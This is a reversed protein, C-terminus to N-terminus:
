DVHKTKIFEIVELSESLKALAVAYDGARTATDAERHLKNIKYNNLYTINTM